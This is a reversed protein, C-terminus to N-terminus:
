ASCVVSAVNALRLDHLQLRIGYLHQLHYMVGTKAFPIRSLFRSVRAGVRKVMQLPLLSRRNQFGFLNFLFVSVVLVRVAFSLEGRAATM